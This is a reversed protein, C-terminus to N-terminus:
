KKKSEKRKRQREQSQLHARWARPDLDNHLKTKSPPTYYDLSHFWRTETTNSFSVSKKKRKPAPEM